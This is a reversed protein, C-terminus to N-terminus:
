AADGPAFATAITRRLLGRGSRELLDLFHDMSSWRANPDDSMARELVAAVRKPVKGQTIRQLGMLVSAAFSYQDSRYDADYGAVVEPAAYALAAAPIGFSDLALADRCGFDLLRTTGDFGVIISAPSFGRHALGARHGAAIGRGVEVFMGLVQTWGIGCPQTLADLWRQIDMGQMLERVIFVGVAHPARADQYTGVERPALIVPHGLDRWAQVEALVSELRQEAAPGVGCGMLSVVLERGTEPDFGSYVTASPGSGLVRRLGYRGVSSLADRTSFLQEHHYTSTM